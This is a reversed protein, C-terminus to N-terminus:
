GSQRKKENSRLGLLGCLLDWEKQYLSADIFSLLVAFFDDLYHLLIRWGFLHM